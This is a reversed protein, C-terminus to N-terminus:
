HNGIIQKSIANYDIMNHCKRTFENNCSIRFTRNTFSAAARLLRPGHLPHDAKRKFRSITPKMVAHAAESTQECYIGLGVKKKALFPKLHLVLIHIKWTPHLNIQLEEEAYKILGHVSENFIDFDQSYTTALDTSFCGKKVIQFLRLMEFIPGAKAPTGEALYALHKLFLNSNGGDLGGGHYGHISIGKHRMREMLEPKPVVKYLLELALNVLGMLLHLEPLPIASLITTDPDGKLLCQNMVNKYHQMDKKKSGAAKYKALSCAMNGFTRLKASQLTM